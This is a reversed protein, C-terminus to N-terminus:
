RKYNGLRKAAELGSVGLTRESMRLTDAHLKGMGFGPGNAAPRDRMRKIAEAPNM